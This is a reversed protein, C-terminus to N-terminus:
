LLLWGERKSPTKIMTEAIKLLKEVKQDDDTDNSARLAEGTCHEENHVPSADNSAKSSQTSRSCKAAMKDCAQRTRELCDNVEELQNLLREMDAFDCKPKILNLGKAKGKPNFMKNYQSYPNSGDIQDVPVTSDIAATTTCSLPVPSVILNVIQRPEQLIHALSTVPTCPPDAFRVCLSKEVPVALLQKVSKQSSSL